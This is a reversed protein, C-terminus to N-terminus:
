APTSTILMGMYSYANGIYTTTYLMNKVYKLYNTSKHLLLYLLLILLVQLTNPQSTILM